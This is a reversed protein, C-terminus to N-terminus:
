AVTPGFPDESTYLDSGVTFDMMAFEVPPFFHSIDARCHGEDYLHGLKDKERVISGLQGEEIHHM